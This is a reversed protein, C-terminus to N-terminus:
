DIKYAENVLEQEINEEKYFIIKEKSIKESYFEMIISVAFPSISKLNNHIIKYRINNIFKTLKDLGVLNNLVEDKTIKILIHNKEYKELVDYIIDSSFNAQKHSKTKGPLNKDILRSITAVKKFHKKIISTNNLWANLEKDLLENNFLKYIDKFEMVSWIAITYDTATFALPQCNFKELRKM